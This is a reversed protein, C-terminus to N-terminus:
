REQIRRGDAPGPMPNIPRPGIVQEGPELFVPGFFPQFTRTGPAPADKLHSIMDRLAIEFPTNQVPYPAYSWAWPVVLTPRYREIVAMEQEYVDLSNATPVSPNWELIAWRVGRAAIEPIVNRGTYFFRGSGANINFSTIGLGGYPSIDGVWHPSASTILRYNPNSPSGGFLYDAPLQHSFWRVVPVTRNTEPDVTTTMWRAFDVNYHWVMVQRFLDWTEWWGNGPARVRPADFATPNQAPLPNFGAGEYVFSPITNPDGDIPDNLSWDFHKLNWTTFSTGFDGNVTHGDGNTDAAPSADGQYRAAQDYGQGAYPQGPAYMGGNRLWDRFEAIAFPSYDALQATAESYAPDIIPSRAYSLESEGDGSATVLTSPYKVMRNAVAAGIERVYAELLTRFKRAYRSYTMWGNAMGGDMYWSTNRRDAREMALQLPDYRERTATLVSFNVPIQSARARKLIFDMQDITSKLAARVADHDNVNVNPDDMSSFIFMSFGVRVFRGEGLRQRLDSIDAAFQADSRSNHGLYNPLVYMMKSVAKPAQGEVPIDFASALLLLLGASVIKLQRPVPRNDSRTMPLDIFATSRM